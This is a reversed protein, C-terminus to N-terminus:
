LSGELVPDDSFTHETEFSYLPPQQTCKVDFLANAEWMREKDINKNKL